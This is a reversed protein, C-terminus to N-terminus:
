WRVRVFCDHFHMRILGPAVGPNTAFADAVAQQVLSEANPCTDQYFGVNLARTLSSLLVSLLFVVALKLVTM